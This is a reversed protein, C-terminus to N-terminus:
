PKLSIISITALKESAPVSSQTQGCPHSSSCMYKSNRVIKNDVLFLMFCDLQGWPANLGLLQAGCLAVSSLWFSLSTYFCWSLISTTPYLPFFIFSVLLSVDWCCIPHHLTILFQPLPPKMLSQLFLISSSKFLFFFGELLVGTNLCVYCYWM